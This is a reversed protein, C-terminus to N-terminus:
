HVISVHGIHKPAVVVIDIKRMHWDWKKNSNSSCGKGSKHNYNTANVKLFPASGVLFIEHNKM